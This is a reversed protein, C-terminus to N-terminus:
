KSGAKMGAMYVRNLDMGLEFIFKGADSMDQIRKNREAQLERRKAESVKVERWPYECETVKGNPRMILQKM